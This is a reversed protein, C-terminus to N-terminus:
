GSLPVDFGADIGQDHLWHMAATRSQVVKTRWPTPEILQEWMRAMGYAIASPAVAVMALHRHSEAAARDQTSTREIDARDIYFNEVAAFDLVLFRIAGNPSRGYVESKAAILDDGTMQGTFTVYAGDTFHQASWPM